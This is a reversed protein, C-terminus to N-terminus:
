VSWISELLQLRVEAAGVLEVIPPRPGPQHLRSLADALINSESPLHAVSYQWDHRARRVFLERALAGMEARAKGSLAIQLSATNDGFFVLGRKLECYRIMVLLLRLTLLFVCPDAGLYVTETLSHSILLALSPIRYRLAM